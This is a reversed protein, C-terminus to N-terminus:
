EEDDEADDISRIFMDKNPKATFIFSSGDCDKEKFVELTCGRRVAISEADKDLDESVRIERDGNDAIVFKEDNCKPEDFLIACQGATPANEPCEDTCVNFVCSGAILQLFSLILLPTALKNM